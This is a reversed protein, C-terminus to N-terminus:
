ELHASIKIAMPPYDMSKERDAAMFYFIYIAKLEKQNENGAFEDYGWTWRDLKYAKPDVVQKLAEEYAQDYNKSKTVRIQGKIPRWVKSANYVSGDNNLLITLKGGEGVTRVKMSDLSIMRNFTVVVNKQLNKVDKAKEGKGPVRQLMMKQGAPEAIDKEAWDQQMFFKKAMEVYDAEKYKSPTEDFKREGFVYIAGSAKNIKVNPINRERLKTKSFLWDEKNEFDALKYREPIPLPILEYVPLYRPVVYILVPANNAFESLYQIHLYNGSPNPTITFTQDFLPTSATSMGGSTICLPTNWDLRHLGWIFADAVDYGQNNYYDWIKNTETEWCYAATSSGCAMRIEASLLPGWREYVNRMNYSDASGDFNGPCAYDETFPPCSRPGHAFVECSCQWYYRLSGKSSNDCNGLDISSLSTSNGLTNFTTPNGHGAYFFLMSKDIGNTADCDKGAATKALDYYYEDTNTLSVHMHTKTWTDPCHNSAIVNGNMDKGTLFAEATNIHWDTNGHATKVTNQAPSTPCCSNYLVGTALLMVSVLLNISTKM